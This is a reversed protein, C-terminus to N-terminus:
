QDIREQWEEKALYVQSQNQALIWNNRVFSVITSESQDTSM